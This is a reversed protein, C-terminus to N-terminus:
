RFNKKIWVDKSSEDMFIVKASKIYMKRTTHNYIVPNWYYTHMEGHALPGIVRLRVRNSGWIECNAPDGVANYFSVNLYIYKIKKKFNNKVTIYPKVGGASDIGFDATKIYLSPAKTVTVRCKVTNGGLLRASITCKGTKKGTVKGNKDVTAIKKNSSKWVIGKIYGGKPKIVSTKLNAKDGTYLSLKTKSIKIKKAYKSVDKLTISYDTKEGYGYVSITYTGKELVVTRTDKEEDSIEWEEIEELIENKEIVDVVIGKEDWYEEDYDDYDSVDNASITIKLKTKNSITFTYKKSDMEKISDYITKGITIKKAAYVDQKFGLCSLICILTVLIRMGVNRKKMRMGGNMAIVEWM